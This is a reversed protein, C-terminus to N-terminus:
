RFIGEFPNHAYQKQIERLAEWDVTAKRPELNLSYLNVANQFVLNHVQAASFFSQLHSILYPWVLGASCGSAAKSGQKDQECHPAHDSEIIPIKGQELCQFLDQRTAPSRLPPNCKYWLGDPRRLYNNDLFLHHPTVGCSLRLPGRYSQIYDAVEPVSVHAVHIKAKLKVEQAITIIDQFSEWEAEEPRCHTSWTIPNQPDFLDDRLYRPSEFHGVLVGEYGEAALTELVQHQQRTELLSLDNTSPGFYAKMGIIRPEQRTAEVARRVQELDATLGIHVYFQIPSPPALRLYERCTKLTLLPPKTNPMAAIATGGAAEVLALSRTITEKRAEQWDRAHWHFDVWM